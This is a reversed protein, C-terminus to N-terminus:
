KMYNQNDQGLGPVPMSDKNGAMKEQHRTAALNLGEIEPYTTLYEVVISGVSVISKFFRNCSKIYNQNDQGLGPAPM